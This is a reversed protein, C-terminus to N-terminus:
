TLNENELSKIRKGQDYYEGDYMYHVIGNLYYCVKGNIICKGQRLGQKDYYSTENEDSYKTYQDYKYKPIPLTKVNYFTHFNPIEKGKIVGDIYEENISDSYGVEERRRLGHLIGYKYNTHDIVQGNDNEVSYGHIVGNVYNETIDLGGCDSMGYFTYEGQRRGFEDLYYEKGDSKILKLNQSGM